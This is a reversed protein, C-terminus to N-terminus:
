LFSSSTRTIPFINGIALCAIFACEMFIVVPISIDKLPEVIEQAADDDGASNAADAIEIIEIGFIL